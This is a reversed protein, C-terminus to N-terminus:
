AFAKTRVTFSSWDEFKLMPVNIMKSYLSSRDTHGVVYLMSVYCPVFSHWFKCKHPTTSCMCILSSWATMFDHENKVLLRGHSTFRQSDIELTTNTSNNTDISIWVDLVLACLDYKIQKFSKAECKIKTQDMFLWLYFFYTSHRKQLCLLVVVVIWTRVVIVLFVIYFRRERSLHCCM